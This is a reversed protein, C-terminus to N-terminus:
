RTINLIRRELKQQIDKKFDEEDKVYMGHIYICSKDDAVHITLSGPTMSILNVLAMIEQDSKVKMEFRIIAPRLRKQTTLIDRTIIFNAVVLERLYFGIFEIVLWIKKIM